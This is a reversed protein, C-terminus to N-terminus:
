RVGGPSCFIRALIHERGMGEKGNVQGEKGDGNGGKWKMRRREGEGRKKGERV